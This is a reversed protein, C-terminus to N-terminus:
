FNLKSSRWSLSRPSSPKLFAILGFLLWISSFRFGNHTIGYLLYPFFIFTCVVISRNVKISKFFVAGQFCVFLFFGIFGYSIFLNGLTSHVEDGSISQYYGEGMGWVLSFGMDDVVGYGRASLSDDSDKGIDSLRSVFHFDRYSFQLAVFIVLTIISTLYILQRGRIFVLGYAVYSVMAAKSLSLITLFAGSCILAIFVWISVKNNQFLISAFGGLCLGYFGLQNPNNFSGVARDLDQPSGSLSFGTLFLSLVAVLAGICVAIAIRNSNKGDDDPGLMFYLSSLFITNFLLYAPAFLVKLSQSSIGYVLQRLAMWALLIWLVKFITSSPLISKGQLLRVMCSAAIMVHAIQPLGSSWLYLPMTAIALLV